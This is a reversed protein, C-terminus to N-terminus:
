RGRAAVPHEADGEGALARAPRWRAGGAAGLLNDWNVLAWSVHREPFM